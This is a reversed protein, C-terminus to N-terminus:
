TAWGRSEKINPTSTVTSAGQLSDGSDTRHQRLHSHSWHSHTPPPECSMNTIIPITDMDQRQVAGRPYHAVSGPKEAKGTRLAQNGGDSALATDM